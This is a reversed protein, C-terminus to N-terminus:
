LVCGFRSVLPARPLVRRRAAVASRAPATRVKRFHDTPWVFDVHKSVHEPLSYGGHCGVRESADDDHTYVFYEVGLIDEAEAVTVNLLVADGKRNMQVKHAAVGLDEVLWSHVAEIAEASPRFKEAVQRPTWHKGYNPSFPDAVDLLYADLNDLNPQALTFKLPLLADPDARRQLSWGHPVFDRSGRIVRSSEPPTAFAAVALTAFLLLQQLAM